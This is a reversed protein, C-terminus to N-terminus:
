FCLFSDLILHISLSTYCRFSVIHLEWNKPPTSWVLMGSISSYPCELFKPQPPTWVLKFGFHWSRDLDKNKQPPPLIGSWTLGLTGLDTWIQIKPHPPPLGSWSLSLTGLDAWIKMQPPVGSWYEQFVQTPASLFNQVLIEPLQFTYHM